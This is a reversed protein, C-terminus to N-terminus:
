GISECFIWSSSLLEILHKLVKELGLFVVQVVFIWNCISVCAEM